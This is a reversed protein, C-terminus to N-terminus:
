DRPSPSTYLLCRMTRAMEFLERVMRAGKVSFCVRPGSEGCGKGWAMDYQNYLVFTAHASTCAYVNSIYALFHFDCSCKSDSLWSSGQSKDYSVWSLCYANTECIFPRRGVIDSNDSDESEPMSIACIVMHHTRRPDDWLYTVFRCLEILKWFIFFGFYLNQVYNLESYCSHTENRHRWQSTM